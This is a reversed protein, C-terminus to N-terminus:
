RQRNLTPSTKSRPLNKRNRATGQIIAQKKRHITRIYRNIQSTQFGTIYSFYELSDVPKNKIEYVSYYETFLIDSDEDYLKACLFLPFLQKFTHAIKQILRKASYGLLEESELSIYVQFNTITNKKVQPPLEALPIIHELLEYISKKPEMSISRSEPWPSNVRIIKQNLSCYYQHPLPYRKLMGMIDSRDIYNRQYNELIYSVCDKGAYFGFTLNQREFILMLQADHLSTIYELGFAVSYAISQGFNTRIISGLRELKINIHKKISDPLIEEVQSFIHKLPQELYKLFHNKRAMYFDSCDEATYFQALLNFTDASFPCEPHVFVKEM